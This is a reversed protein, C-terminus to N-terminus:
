PTAAITISDLIQRMAVQDAAHRTPDDAIGDALENPSTEPFDTTRIVLLTGNVDVIRFTGARAKGSAGVMPYANVSGGQPITWVSGGNVCDTATRTSTLEILQGSYGGVVTPAPATAEFGPWRSMAAVLGDVTGTEARDFTGKTPDCPDKTVSGVVNFELGWGSGQNTGADVLLADYADHDTYPLWEFWGAPVEMTIEGPWVDGSLRYTGPALCNPAGGSPSCAVLPAAELMAPPAPSASPSPSPALSPTAAPPGGVGGQRGGLFTIGGLIILLGIVAAAAVRWTNGNMPIARRAAGFRQQSTVHVEDLAAQLSRDPMETPGDQLWTQAIRDFDANQNM